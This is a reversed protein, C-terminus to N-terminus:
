ASARCVDPLPARLQAFRCALRQTELHILHYHLKTAVLYVQACVECSQKRLQYFHCGDFCCSQLRHEDFRRRLEPPTAFLRFFVTSLPAMLPEAIPSIPTPAERSQVKTLARIQMRAVVVAVVASRLGIEAACAESATFM